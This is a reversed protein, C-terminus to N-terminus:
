ETPTSSTDLVARLEALLQQDPVYMTFDPPGGHDARWRITGEPGVLIFTHGPLSGGMMGYSLAGYETSVAKADDALVPLSVGRLEARQRQASLPDVSIAAFRERVTLSPDPESM